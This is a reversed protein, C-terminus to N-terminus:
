LRINGDGSHESYEKFSREAAEYVATWDRCKHTVEPVSLQHGKPARVSELRLDSNCLLTQRIYNMCHRVLEPRNIQADSSDDAYFQVLTERIINLCRLQHFLGLTFPRQSPGLHIVAGSSPLTANWEADGLPTNFAYHLSNELSLYVHDLPPLPWSRPYDSGMYTYDHRPTTNTPGTSRMFASVDEYTAIFFLPVAILLAAVVHIRKQLLTRPSFTM